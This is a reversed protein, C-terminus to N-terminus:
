LRLDKLTKTLEQYQLLLLTKLSYLARNLEQLYNPNSFGKPPYCYVKSVLRANTFANVADYHRIEINFYAAIAILARFCRIALTAAHTEKTTTQLDGRVCICAKYKTLYGEANLKYKFVQILLLVKNNKADLDKQALQSYTGKRKITKIKRQM